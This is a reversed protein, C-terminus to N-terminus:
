AQGTWDTHLLARVRCRARCPGVLCACSSAPLFNPISPAFQISLSRPVQICRGDGRERGAVGANGWVQRGRWRSFTVM